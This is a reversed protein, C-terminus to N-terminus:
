KLKSLADSAKEVLEKAASIDAAIHEPIEADSSLAKVVSEETGRVAKRGEERVEGEWYERAAEWKKQMRGLGYVIGLAAVAGVEYLTTSLSSIYLLGALTTSITSTGLSQVVLRQALAQLAPITEDQLYRRTFGIHGPWRPLSKPELRAITQDKTDEKSSQALESVPQAYLPVSGRQEAIRGALYILNNESTPLFRQSLIDNTLMGVDDVRWFLKWWGLKRWSRGAFAKDMESQLEAHAARSWDSLGAEMAAAVADSMKPADILAQLAAEQQQVSMKASEVLSTLLVKVAPKTEHDSGAASQRLWSTIVPLNSAFWLKEYQLANQPGQRFLRVAEQAQATDVVKFHGNLQEATVKAMDVAGIISQSLHEIPLNALQVAGEFNEGVVIAQHVPTTMPSVRDQASAIDVSPVLIAEEVAADSGAHTTPAPANVNMVLFELNLNNFQPSSIHLEEVPNHRAFELTSGYSGTPGIRVVLPVKPDYGDLQAEWPQEDTLPDSLIARLLKRAVTTTDGLGLVAIRIIEQGAPKQLGQLALQLRSLNMANPLHKNLQNLANQLELRANKSTSEYRTAPVRKRALLTPRSPSAAVTCKPCSQTARRTAARSIARMQGSQSLLPRQPAM